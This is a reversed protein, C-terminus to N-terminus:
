QLAALWKLRLYLLLQITTNLFLKFLASELRCYIVASAVTLFINRNPRVALTVKSIKQPFPISILNSSLFKLFKMYLQIFWRFHLLARELGLCGFVALTWLPHINSIPILFDLTQPFSPPLPLKNILDFLPAIGCADVPWLVNDFFWIYM